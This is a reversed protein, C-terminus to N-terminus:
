SPKWRHGTWSSFCWMHNPSSNGVLVLNTWGWLCCHGVLVDEHCFEQEECKMRSVLEESRTPSLDQALCRGLQLCQVGRFFCVFPSIPKCSAIPHSIRHSGLETQFCVSKGLLTKRPKVEWPALGYGSCQHPAGISGRPTLFPLLSTSPFRTPPQWRDLMKTFRARQKGQKGKALVWPWVPIEMVMGCKTKFLVKDEKSQWKVPLVLLLFYCWNPYVGSHTETGRGIQWNLLWVLCLWGWAQERAM